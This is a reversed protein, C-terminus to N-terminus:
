NRRDHNGEMYDRAKIKTIIRSGSRTLLETTPRAVLGEAQFDGFASNLGEKIVWEADALTGRGIIEVSSIGFEKAIDNVDGRQMWWKGIRVDFLIFDVRKEGGVYNGGKQIKHGYGEGYLTVTGESDFISMAPNNSFIEDLRALLPPPIQANDTRGRFMQGPENTVRINTGDIKETFEWENNYLYEIEATSFETTFRGRGDRKYISNIKHYKNM